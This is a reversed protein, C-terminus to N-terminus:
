RGSPFGAAELQELKWPEAIPLPSAPSRRRNFRRALNAREQAIAQLWKRPAQQIRARLIPDDLQALYAGFYAAQEDPSFWDSGHLMLCAHDYRPGRLQRRAGGRWTDIFHVQQEPDDAAILLNRPYLDRHIFGLNHLRAVERGLNQLVMERGKTDNKALAQDLTQANPLIQTALFQFPAAGTRHAVGASVPCPARFGHERLWRLNEFEALRPFKRRLLAARLSHRLRTKGRLASGKLYLEQGACHIRLGASNGSATLTEIHGVLEADHLLTGVGDIKFPSTM